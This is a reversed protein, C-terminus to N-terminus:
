IESLGSATTRIHSLLAAKAREPDGSELGDVIAQHEAIVAAQREPTNMLARIGIRVHRARLDAYAKTMLSNGVARVLAIHFESDSEMFELEHGADSCDIQHQLAAKMAELPVTGRQMVMDAANSELVTRYELAESIEQRTVPPIYAGHRPVLQLLGESALLLFAERVPTRSTGGVREAVQEETLFSGHFAPDPLIMDRIFDYARDRNSQTTTQM